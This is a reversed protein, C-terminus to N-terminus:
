RYRLIYLRIRCLWYTRRRYKRLLDLLQQKEALVDDLIQESIELSGYLYNEYIEIFGGSDEHTRRIRELLEHLTESVERRYGLLGLIQLNHLVALRYKEDVSRKEERYKEWLWDIVVTLVSGILLLLVAGFLYSLWQNEVQEAPIDEELVNEEPRKSEPVLEDDQTQSEPEKAYSFDIKDVINESEPLYRNMAFGPTPEFPIWGKGEIYVEPWAHAMDSYVLTEDGSVVPICFGQVYRAPFGETRALLVFATAYHVCYGERKELIFYDMFSQADTVTSPLEGPSTNYEMGSLADEIRKLKETDTRADETVSALWEELKPSIETKTLYHEKIMERYIDLAEIPIDQDSYQEVTKEWTEVDEDQQWELFRYLEEREMNLQCFRVTYETGYGATRDFTLNDGDSYYIVKKDKSEVGWTKSPAMLYLTHFYRYSVDMDISRYLTVNPQDAYRRLAYATEVADMIRESGKIDERNEWERGDFSDFIKGTLYVSMEKQKGIGLVMLGGNSTLVNSFLGGDESFGSTAGSFYEDGAHWINQAYMTIKNEASRYIRKIWQWDYPKDPMPVLCLLVTYALFFPLVSLIFPQVNESKQKKWHMRIWEAVVLGIYLIFLVVGVKSTKRMYLLCGGVIDAAAIKLFIKRELLLHVPYCIVVLLFVRGLEIYVVEDAPFEYSMLSSNAPSSLDQITSWGLVRAFFTLCSEIGISMFLFLFILTGLVVAYVQRRRDLMRVASFILVMILLVAMHIRNVNHIGCLDPFCFLIMSSFIGAYLLGSAFLVVGISKKM